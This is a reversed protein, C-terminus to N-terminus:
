KEAVEPDGTSRRGVIVANLGLVLSAPFLADRYPSCALAVVVAFLISLGTGRLTM